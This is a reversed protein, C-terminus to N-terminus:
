STSTSRSRSLRDLDDRVREPEDTLAMNATDHIGDLSGTATPSLHPSSGRSTPPPRDPRPSSSSPRRRAAAVDLSRVLVEAIQRRSVVGDSSDRAHRTDGQLAILQLEDPDNYEFWGPRIITYPRGRARVLRESGRKWDHAHTAQNYSGTRNTVGISTMLAIGAPRDGLATLVNRVGGYDV